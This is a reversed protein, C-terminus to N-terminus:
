KGLEALRDLALGYNPFISLASRYDKIASNKDGSYEYALGRNYFAEVYNQNARIANSFQKIAEPYDEKNVLAIFGLNYYADSYNSNKSLITKYDEEAKDLKGTEQYYLGRNYLAEESSPRM